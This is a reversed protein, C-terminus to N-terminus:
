KENEALIREIDSKEALGPSFATASGLKVATKLAKKFDSGKIYEYLFGAVLSDGAGVSSIPEGQPAKQIYRNRNEDLLVAGLKDLSVIVNRAGLRQLREAYTFATEYGDIRVNFIQGLEDANPKILFPKFPLTNVLLDGQADVVTLVRRDEQLQLLEAYITDSTGTPISGSLILCDGDTLTSVKKKLQLVEQGTPEPGSANIESEHSGTLKVNIRSMGESIRVFDEAIGNQIVYEKIKDGTFGAVFGLCCSKIGIKSLMLSVNIGKGGVGLRESYSRNTRGRKFEKIEMTYDLAPNLTVTYIM